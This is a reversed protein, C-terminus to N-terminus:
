KSGLGGRKLSGRGIGSSGDFRAREQSALRRKMKRAENGGSLNFEDAVLDDTSTKVGSIAGLKRYSEAQAAVNAFQLNTQGFGGAADATSAVQDRTSESITLGQTTAAAGVNARSERINFEDQLKDRDKETGLVYNLMDQDSLGYMQRLEKKVEPNMDSSIYDRAIKVRSTVRDPSLNNAMFEAIRDPNAYRPDVDMLAERYSAEAIVYQAPLLEPIPALGQKIRQENVERVRKVGPFREYYIQQYTKGNPLPTTDNSVAMAITESNTYGRVMYSEWAAFLETMRYQALLQQVAAIEQPTPDAM